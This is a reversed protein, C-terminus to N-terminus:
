RIPSDSEWPDPNKGLTCKLGETASTLLGITDRSLELDAAKVNSDIQKRNRAGTIVSTVRPRSLLWGLAIEGMPTDIDQCIKRIREITEFTEKEAGSEAHKAMPRSGSFHRTRAREQPVEDASRFKDTLLGQALASYCTIPIDNEVCFLQIEYEIARWILSYSLQKVEVRSLEGFNELATRGFNSCGILRIKGERKLAKVTSITNELRIKWNLWHIYYVDIYDTKLRRLSDECALRLDKPRLRDPLVKTAIIM